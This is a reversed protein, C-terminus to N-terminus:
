PPLLGWVSVKVFGDSDAMRLVVHGRGVSLLRADKPLRVTGLLKGDQGFVTWVADPDQSRVFDEAWVRGQDDIELRRYAPMRKPFSLGELAAARVARASGELGDLQQSKFSKIDDATVPFPERAARVIRQLRGDASLVRFEYTVGEGVIVSMGSPRVSTIRGFPAAMITRRSVSVGGSPAAYARTEGATENALFSGVHGLRAPPLTVSLREYELVRREGQGAPLAPAGSGTSRATGSLLVSGDIFCCLVNGRIPVTRVFGATPHLIVLSGAMGQSVLLSDGKWRWAAVLNQFEGPGGGPRGFRNVVSGRCSYVRIERVRAEAVVISGDPLEFASPVSLLDVDPDSGGGAIDCLPKPTLRFAPAARSPAPNRVIAIGASDAVGPFGQGSAPGAGAIAAAVPVVLLVRMRANWSVGSSRRRALPRHNIPRRM